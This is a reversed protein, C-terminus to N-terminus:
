LFESFFYCVIIEKELREGGWGVELSPWCYYDMGSFSAAHLLQLFFCNSFPPETQLVFASFDYIAHFFPLMSWSFSLIGMLDSLEWVSQKAVCHFM